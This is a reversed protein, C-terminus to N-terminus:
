REKTKFVAGIPSFAQRIVMSPSRPLHNTVFALALCLSIFLLTIGTWFERRHQSRWLPPLDIAALGLHAFIVVWMGRMM